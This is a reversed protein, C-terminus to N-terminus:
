NIKINGRICTHLTHWFRSAVEWAFTWLNRRQFLGTQFLGSAGNKIYRATTSGGDSGDTDERYTKGSVHILPKSFIGYGDINSGITTPIYGEQYFYKVYRSPFQSPYDTVFLENEVDTWKRWHTPNYTEIPYAYRGNEFAYCFGWTYVTGSKSDGDNNFDSSSIYYGGGKSGVITLPSIKYTYSPWMRYFKSNTNDRKYWEYVVNPSSLTGLNTIVLALLNNYNSSTSIFVIGNERSTTPTSLDIDCSPAIFLVRDIPNIDAFLAPNISLGLFALMYICRYVKKPVRQEESKYGCIKGINM